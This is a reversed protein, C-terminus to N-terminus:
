AARFVAADTDPGARPVTGTTELEAAIMSGQSWTRVLAGIAEPL